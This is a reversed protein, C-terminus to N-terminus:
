YSSLSRAAAAAATRDVAIVAGDLTTCKCSCKTVPCETHERFWREMHNAHGGHRCTQCWTFWHDFPAIRRESSGAESSSCYKVASSVTGLNLLCVSCRPLPKRCGPCSETRPQTQGGGMGAHRLLSSRSGRNSGPTATSGVGGVGGVSSAEGSVSKGCYNCSVFIQSPPRSDGNRRQVDLTARENWLQWVDLLERYAEIWADFKGNTALGKSGALCAVLSATQVDGTKEVYRQLLDVGMETLGTLLIGDLCGEDTYQRALQNVYVHLKDADLFMCAVALKDTLRLSSKNAKPTLVSEVDNPESTLFAFAAVLYPDDAEDKRQRCIEHWLSQNDSYGALAMSILNLSAARKENDRRAESAGGLLINVAKKIYGHFLAITAAREFENNLELRKLFDDLSRGEDEVEEDIDWGCLLMSSKRAESIYKHRRPIDGGLSHFLRSGDEGRQREPELITQIGPFPNTTSGLRKGENKLRSVLDLLTWLRYLEENEKVISRNKAVDLGYGDGARRRMQMSVDDLLRGEDSKRISESAWHFLGSESGYSVQTLPSLDLPIRQCITLEDVDGEPGITLMSCRQSNLWAFSHCQKGKLGITHELLPLTIDDELATLDPEPQQIDFLRVVSSDKRLAGLLACRNPCWALKTFPGPRDLTLIPKEFYRTDFFSVTGENYSALRHENHPDVCVGHVYKTFSVMHPRTANEERLDFMRLEKKGFGAVLRKGSLWALSLVSESSSGLEALPHKQSWRGQQSEGTPSSACDWILLSPDNRSKDLGEALLNPHEPNWELSLCPRNQKPIFECGHFPSETEDLMKLSALSVKGTQQGIAILKLRPSPNWAVCKSTSVKEPIVSVLAAYKDESLQMCNIGRPMSSDEAKKCVEFLRLDAGHTLFLNDEERPLALIDYRISSSM